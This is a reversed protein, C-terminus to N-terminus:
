GRRSKELGVAAKAAPILAQLVPIFKHFLSCTICRITKKEQLITKMILRYHNEGVFDQPNM